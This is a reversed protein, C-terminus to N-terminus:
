PKRTRRTSFGTVSGGYRVGVRLFPAGEKLLNLVEEGLVRLDLRLFLDLFAVVALAGDDAHPEMGKAVAEDAQACGITYRLDGDHIEDAM